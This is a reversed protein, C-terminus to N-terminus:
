SSIRLLLRKEVGRSGAEILDRRSDSCFDAAQLQAGQGALLAILQGQQSGLTAHEDELVLVEGLNALVLLSLEARVKAGKVDMLHTPLHLVIGLEEGDVTVKLRARNVLLDLIIDATDLPVTIHTIFHSNM